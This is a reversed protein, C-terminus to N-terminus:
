AMKAHGFRPPRSGLATPPLDAPPLWGAAIWSRGLEFALQRWSTARKRTSRASDIVLRRGSTV